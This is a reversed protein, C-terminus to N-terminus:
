GLNLHALILGVAAEPSRHATDVTCDACERYFPERVHLLQEIEEIGGQTLNPRRDATAPDHQLRHWVTQPDATLWAVTGSKRLCERNKADLIAGGGTAIVHRRLGCLENLLASEMRRFGAEGHQEFISRISQGLRKEVQEDLDLFTWGLREALLRGVTTKGTGRYGILFVNPNRQPSLTSYPAPQPRAQLRQRRLQFFPWGWKM